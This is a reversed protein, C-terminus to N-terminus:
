FTHQKKIEYACFTKNDISDRVAVLKFFNSSVHYTKVFKKYYATKEQSTEFQIFDTQFVPHNEKKGM